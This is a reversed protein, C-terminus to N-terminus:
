GPARRRSRWAVAVVACVVGSLLGTAHALPAIAIDWGPPHRLTPGWPTESAVKAVLGILLAAGVLRQPRPGAHILHVAVVAAGAHLVGSLGGYHALEPRVALGWHTLPWAAAWAWVLGPSPRALAGLAAVLGAGALNAGLHLASYHVGVATLARWPEAGALAPQWDFATRPAGFLAVALLGLLVALGVWRRGGSTM